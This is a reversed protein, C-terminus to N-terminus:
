DESCYKRVPKLLGLISSTILFIQKMNNAKVSTAQPSRAMKDAVMGVLVYVIMGEGTGPIAEEVGTLGVGPICRV